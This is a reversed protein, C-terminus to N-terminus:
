PGFMGHNTNEYLITNKHTSTAQPSPSATALSSLLLLNEM